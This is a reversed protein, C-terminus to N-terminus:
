KKSIKVKFNKGLGGGWGDRVWGPWIGNDNDCITLVLSFMVFFFPAVPVSFFHWYLIFGDPQHQSSKSQQSSQTNRNEEPTLFM